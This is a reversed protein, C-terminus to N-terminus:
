GYKLRRMPTTLERRFIEPAVGQSIYEGNWCKPVTKCKFIKRYFSQYLNTLPNDVFSKRVNKGAKLGGGEDM